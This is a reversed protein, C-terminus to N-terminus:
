DKKAFYFTLIMIVVPMFDVVEIKDNLFGYVFAFTVSLTIITKVNILKSLQKKM